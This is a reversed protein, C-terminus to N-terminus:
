LVAWTVINSMNSWICCYAAAYARRWTGRYFYLGCYLQAVTVGPMLMDSEPRICYLRVSVFMDVIVYPPHLPWADATQSDHRHIKISLLTHVTSKWQYCLTCLSNSISHSMRSMKQQRNHHTSELKMRKTVTKYRFWRYWDLRYILSLSNILSLHYDRECRRARLEPTVLLFLAQITYILVCVCVCVCACWVCV